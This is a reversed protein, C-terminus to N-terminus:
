LMVPYKRSRRASGASVGVVSDTQERAFGRPSPEDVGGSGRIHEAHDHDGAVLRRRVEDAVSEPREHAVGLLHLPQALLGLARASAILSTRRKSLGTCVSKLIAFLSVTTPPFVM